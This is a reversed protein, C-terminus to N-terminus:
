KVSIRYVEELSIPLSSEPQTNKIEGGFYVEVSKGELTQRGSGNQFKTAKKKSSSIGSYPGAMTRGSM